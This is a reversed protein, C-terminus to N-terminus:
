GKDKESSDDITENVVDDSVYTMTAKMEGEKINFTYLSINNAPLGSLSLSNTLMGPSFTVVTDYYELSGEAKLSEGTYPDSVSGAGVPKDTVKGKEDKEKALVSVSETVMMLPGAIFDGAEFDNDETSVEDDKDSSDDKKKDDQKGGDKSEEEKSEEPANPDNKYTMDENAAQTFEDLNQLDRDYGGSPFMGTWSKGYDTSKGVWRTGDEFGMLKETITNRLEPRKKKIEDSSISDLYGEFNFWLIADKADKTDEVFEKNNKLSDGNNSAVELVSDRAGPSTLVLLNDKPNDILTDSGEPLHEAMYLMDNMSTKKDKLELVIVAEEEYSNEAPINFLTMQKIHGQVDGLDITPTLRYKSTLLFNHWWKATDDKTEPVVSYVSTAEKPVYNLVAESAVKTKGKKINKTANYLPKETATQFTKAGTIFLLAFVALGAIAIVFIKTRKKNLSM